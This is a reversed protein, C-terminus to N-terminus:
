PLARRRRRKPTDVRLCGCSRTDGARLSAARALVERGCVCTCRWLPRPRAGDTSGAREVVTLRGFTRGALDAARRGQRRRPQAASMTRFMETRLCGCSRTRESLLSKGLVVREQGCTCRCRWLPRHPVSETSGERAIVALRGFVRGVLDVALRGRRAPPVRESVPAESAGVARPEPLGVLTM